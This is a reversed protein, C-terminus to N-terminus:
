KKYLIIKVENVTEINPVVSYVVLTDSGYSCIADKTLIANSYTIAEFVEKTLLETYQMKKYGELQKLKVRIDVAASLSEVYDGNLMTSSVTQFSLVTKLEGPNM